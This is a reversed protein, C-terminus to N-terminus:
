THKLVKIHQMTHAVHSCTCLPLCHGRVEASDPRGEFTSCNLTDTSSVHLWMKMIVNLLHSPILNVCM